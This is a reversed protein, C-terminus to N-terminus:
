AGVSLIRISILLQTIILVIFIWLKKDSEEQTKNLERVDQEIHYIHNNKLIEIDKQVLLISSRIIEVEVNLENTDKM